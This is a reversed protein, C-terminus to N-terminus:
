GGQARGAERSSSRLLALLGGPLLAADVPIDHPEAPVEDLVEGDHLVAVLRADARARGLARDYSGGGRGLRRGARDVALAPVLVIQAEGVADRGLAAGAPERLRPRVASPRLAGPGDYPAWDLDGDPCLVPLLVRVGAGHLAEILPGTPPETGTSVYATVCGYAAVGAPGGLVLRSGAEALARGARELEPSTRAARAALVCRRLDRKRASIASVGRHASM